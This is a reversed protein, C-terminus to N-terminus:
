TAPETSERTFAVLWIAGEVIAGRPLTLLEPSPNNPDPRYELISIYSTAVEHNASDRVGLQESPPVLPQVPPANTRVAFVEEAAHPQVTRPRPEGAFEAERPQAVVVRTGRLTIVRQRVSPLRAQASDPVLVANVHLHADRIAPPLPRKHLTGLRENGRWLTWTM